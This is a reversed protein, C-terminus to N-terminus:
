EKADNTVYIWSTGSGAWIGVAKQHSTETNLERPWVRVPIHVNETYGTGLNGHENWGWGWVETSENDLSVLALVHESGCAMDIIHCSNLSFPFDIPAPSPFESSDHVTRGLQGHSHSGTAVIRMNGDDSQVLVYTGNWTCGLKTAGKITEMGQLQGKRNSGLGTVSGSAHMFITHQNGLSTSMIPDKPDDSSVVQPVSVFPPMKAGQTIVNGLQGHRSTGWGVTFRRNSGDNLTAELHVAVHHQGTALSHIVISKTDVSIGDIKVHDFSVVHFPPKEQREKGKKSRGIGLDGFDDSGMSIVVDEKHPCSLAIYTTEWSAAVDKIQYHELDEQELPIGIPRFILPKEAHIDGRYATLQGSEGDGCGWLEGHIRGSQDYTELFVLTHNAGRAIHRVRRTRPPLEGPPCGYFSCPHFEHSDDLSGNSLQGHANSGSSLLASM